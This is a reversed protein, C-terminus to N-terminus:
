FDVVVSIKMATHEWATYNEPLNRPTFFCHSPLFWEMLETSSIVCNGRENTESSYPKGPTRAWFACTPQKEPCPLQVEESNKERPVIAVVNRQIKSNCITVRRVRECDVVPVGRLTGASEHGFSALHCSGWRIVLLEAQGLKHAESPVVVCLTVTFLNIQRYTTPSPPRYSTSTVHIHDTRPRYTTPM